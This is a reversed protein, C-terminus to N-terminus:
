WVLMASSARLPTSAVLVLTFRSSTADTAAKIPSDAYEFGEAEVWGRHRERAYICVLMGFASALKAVERGINGYGLVALKQGELKATPFDKLDRGTDFNGAVTREHLEGVPLNPVVKLLAKMAMQATARSNIGPTNMLPAVGGDGDPGGWSSSGM